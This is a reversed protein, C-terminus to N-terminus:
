KIAIFVARISKEDFPENTYGNKIEVSHFGTKKLLNEVLQCDYAKQFHREHFIKNNQGNNFTVNYENIKMAHYYKNEWVYSEGGPGTGKYTKNGMKDKFKYETNMDFIFVGGPNLFLHVRAFVRQLSCADLIYNMVDCVSIAAHVSGYLDLEKIDQNIFLINEGCTQAKEYAASLMDSSSDVGIVSYEKKSLRVSMSGTGCGLDLVIKKGSCKQKKSIWKDIQATWDDYPADFMLADYIKAFGSYIKM